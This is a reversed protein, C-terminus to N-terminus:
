CVMKAVCEVVVEGGFFWAQAGWKQFGGEFIGTFVCFLGPLGGPSKEVVIEVLRQFEIRM